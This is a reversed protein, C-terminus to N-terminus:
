SRRFSDIKNVESKLNDSAKHFQNRERIGDLDLSVSQERLAIIAIQKPMVCCQM